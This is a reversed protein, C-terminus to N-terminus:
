LRTIDNEDLIEGYQVEILVAKCESNNIIRHQEEKEIYFHTNPVAQLTQGGIIVIPSGEAVIWHEARHKHTQLSIAKGPLLSLIKVTHKNGADIVEYHGWQRTDKDGRKYSNSM